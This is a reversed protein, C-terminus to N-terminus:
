SINLEGVLAVVSAFGADATPKISLLGSGYDWEAVHAADETSKEIDGDPTAPVGFVRVVGGSSKSHSFKEDIQRALRHDRLNIKFGLNRVVVMYDPFALNRSEQSANGKLQYRRGPSPVNWDGAPVAVTLIEDYTFQIDLRNETDVNDMNVGVGSAGGAETFEIWPGYSFADTAAHGFETEKVEAGDSVNIQSTTEGEGVANIWYEVKSTYDYAMWEPVYTIAHPTRNAELLGRAIDASAHCAPMTVGEVYLGGVLANTVRNFDKSLLKAAPGGIETLIAQYSSSTADVRKKANAYGPANTPWWQAFDQEGTKGSGEEKEFMDLAKNREDLAQDLAACFDKGVMDIRAQLAPDDGGIKVSLLYELLCHDYTKHHSPDFFIDNTQLLNNIIANLGYNTYAPDINSAAVPAKQAAKTFFLAPKHGPLGGVVNQVAKCYALWLHKDVTSVSM